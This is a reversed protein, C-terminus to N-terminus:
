EPDAYTSYQPMGSRVTAECADWDTAGAADILILLSTFSSRTKEALAQMPQWPMSASCTTSSQCGFGQNLTWNPRSATGNPSKEFRTSGLEYRVAEGGSM